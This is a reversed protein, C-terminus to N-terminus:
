DAAPEGERKGDSARENRYESLRHRFQEELTAQILHDIIWGACAGVVMFIAMALISDFLVDTAPTGRLMGQLIVLALAIAGLVVAGSRQM